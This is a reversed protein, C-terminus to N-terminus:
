TTLLAVNIEKVMKVRNLMKELPKKPMAMTSYWVPSDPVCSREPQLYFVDNRTKVSEPCKSLFFEYLKVPCRLPNVENEAQEYVRKKRNGDASQPPYFRLLVHRSGPNNSNRKWHKMIHSFSLQLHEDVTTLSFHKTNFFMLTNLLVLPSHAGLQKSEWLHEEEVRTVIFQSNNYLNSFKQCVENFTNTFKEYFSDCFINDVRGNEYLYQQIGLCLYYITDPAYEAGNPKRVEKVFLCLSFNLDDATLQLIDNKFLKPTKQTRQIEANKMTVWQKWANVGFTYKLCLNTDPKEEDTSTSQSPPTVQRKPSKLKSKKKELDSSCQPDVPSSAAHLDSPEEFDSAMKLAMTLVDEGFSTSAEMTTEDPQFTEEAPKAPEDTESESSTNEKTEGAAMEAMMLLEAELPDAPVRNKIKTIEKQIGAISKRGTPIFIPVPLPIPIPVPMPINETYMHLPLPVHVPCPVPVFYKSQEHTQTEVSVLTPKISTSKSSLNPKCMTAVNRQKIPPIPRTLTIKHIPVKNQKSTMKIIDYLSKNNVVFESNKAVGELQKLNPETQRLFKVEYSREFHVQLCNNSCSYVIDCGKEFLKVMDFNYKKVSCSCCTVIKRNTILFIKQCAKSCIMHTGTESYILPDDFRPEFYTPCSECKVPNANNVFKYAVFCPEGCFCFIKDAKRIKVEVTKVLHCVACRNSDKPVKDPSCVQMCRKSCFNKTPGSLERLDEQCYACFKYTKKYCLLCTTSCFQTITNGFRVCFKALLNDPVLCRCKACDKNITKQFIILCSENCFDIAEWSVYNDIDFQKRCSGCKRLPDKNICYDDSEVENEIDKSMEEITFPAEESTTNEDAKAFAKLRLIKEVYNDVNKQKFTELCEDNCIYMSDVSRQALYKPIFKKECVGCDKETSEQFHSITYKKDKDDDSPLITEDEFEKVKDMGSSNDDTQTDSDRQLIATSEAVFESDKVDFGDQSVDMPDDIPDQVEDEVNTTEANMDDLNVSAFESKKNSDDAEDSPGCAEDVQKTESDMLYIDTRDDINIFANAIAEKSAESTEMDAEEMEVDTNDSTKNDESMTAKNSEESTEEITQKNAEM